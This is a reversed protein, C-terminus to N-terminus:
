RNTHDVIRYRTAARCRKCCREGGYLRLALWAYTQGFVAMILGIALVGRLLGALTAAALARSDASAISEDSGTARQADSPKSPDARLLTAFYTYFSEEIPQAHIPLRAAANCSCAM